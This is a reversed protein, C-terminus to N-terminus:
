LRFGDRLDVFVSDATDPYVGLEGLIENSGAGVELIHTVVNLDPLDGSILEDYVIAGSASSHWCM